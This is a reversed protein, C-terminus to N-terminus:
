SEGSPLIRRLAPLAQEMAAYGEAIAEKARQYEMPEIADVRPLLLIHPPEGALRSRTIQDEMVHLASLLVDFYGPSRATSPSLNSMIPSVYQRLFDPAQDALKRLTDSTTSEKRGPARRNAFSRVGNSVHVAIIIDAGLARCLSVPVPNVL